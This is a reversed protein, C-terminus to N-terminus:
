NLQLFVRGDHIRVPYSRVAQACPAGTARGDRIDFRGQHLPCEIEHGELFGECLRGPGHTCADDTAFVSGDVRYLAIDRGALQLGFAEGEAVWDEETAQTWGALDAANTPDATNATDRSETTDTRITGTNM